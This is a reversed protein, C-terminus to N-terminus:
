IRARGAARYLAACFSLHAPEKLVILRVGGYEDAILRGIEAKYHRIRDSPMQDHLTWLDRPEWFGVENDNPLPPMLNKPLAAGLLSIVRALASTGSRHMGLVLICSRGGDRLVRTSRKRHLTLPALIKDDM